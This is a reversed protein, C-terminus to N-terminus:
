PADDLHTGRLTLPFEEIPQVLLLLLQLRDADERGRLQECGCQLYFYGLDFIHFLAKGERINGEFAGKVLFAFLGQHIGYFRVVVDLVHHRSLFLPFYQFPLDGLELGLETFFFEEDEIM